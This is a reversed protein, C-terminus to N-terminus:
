ENVSEIIISLAMESVGILESMEKIGYKNCTSNIILKFISIDGFIKSVLELCVKNKDSLKKNEDLAEQLEKEKKDLDSTIDKIYSLMEQQTNIIASHELRARDLEEELRNCRDVCGELESKVDNEEVV